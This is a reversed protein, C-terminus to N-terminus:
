KKGGMLNSIFNFLKDNTSLFNIANVLNITHELTENQKMKGLFSQFKEAAERWKKHDKMNWCVDVGEEIYYCCKKSIVIKLVDEEHPLPCFITHLIDTLQILKPDM